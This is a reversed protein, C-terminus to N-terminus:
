VQDPASSGQGRGRIILWAPVFVWWFGGKPMLVACAVNVALLQWGLSPPLQLGGREAIIAMRGLFITWIGWLAFWFVLEQEAFLGLKGVASDAQGVVGRVIIDRVAARGVGVGVLHLTGILILLRGVVFRRRRWILIAGTLMVPFLAARVLDAELM